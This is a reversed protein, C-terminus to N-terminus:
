KGHLANYQKKKKQRFGLSSTRIKFEENANKPSYAGQVASTFLTSKGQGGM